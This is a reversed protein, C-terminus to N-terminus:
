ESMVLVIEIRVPRGDQTAPRFEWKNLAPMILDSMESAAGLTRLGDFRGATTIFGHLFLQRSDRFVAPGPLYTVRPYPPILPAPNGLLVVAGGGPEQAAQPLAYQLTWEKKAGVNLFVTYVPRGALLGPSEPLGDAYSSQVVIDFVGDAPHLKQNPGAPADAATHNSAPELHAAGPRAAAAVSHSPAATTHDKASAEAHQSTKHEPSSGGNDTSAKRPEAPETRTAPTHDPTNSRGAGAVQESGHDGPKATETQPKASGAAAGGSNAEGGEAAVPLARGVQNAAPVTMFERLPRPSESIALLSAPDGPVPDVTPSGGGPPRDDLRRMPLATPPPAPIFAKPLVNAALSVVDGAPVELKPPADLQAAVSPKRQYGPMVFPRQPPPAVVPAWFFLDAVRATAELVPATEFSPQLITQHDNTNQKLPPLEFKRRRARAVTAGSGPGQAAQREGSARMRRASAMRVPRGSEKRGSSTLYLRDPIRIRLPQAARLQEAWWQRQPTAPVPVYSWALGLVLVHLLVSASIGRWQRAGAVFVDSFYDERDAPGDALGDAPATSLHLVLRM